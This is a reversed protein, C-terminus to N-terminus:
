HLIASPEYPESDPDERRERGVAPLLVAALAMAACNWWFANPRQSQMAPLTWGVWLAAWAVAAAILGFLLETRPRRMRNSARDGEVRSRLWSMAGYPLTFVIGSLVGDVAEEMSSDRHLHFLTVLAVTPIAFGLTRAALRM